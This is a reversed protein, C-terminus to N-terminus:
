AEYVELPRAFGAPRDFGERALARALEEALEESRYEPFLHTLVLRGVGAERALAVAQGVTLHGAAEALPRDRELASAECLLLDAGAALDRVEDCPGTDATYVVRRGDAEAAVALTYLPHRTRAFRLVLGGFALTDAATIGRAVLVEGAGLRCFEGPPDQPAYVPLPRRDGRRPWARLRWAHYLVSLDGTHDAHLHSLVVADLRELPLVRLLNAVVGSGCDILVAAGGGEVLYGPCAGGPAPYPASAGLVTVRLAM